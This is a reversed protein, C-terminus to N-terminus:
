WSSYSEDNWDSYISKLKDNTENDYPQEDYEGDFEFSGDYQNNNNNNIIDIKSRDKRGIIRFSANITPSPDKIDREILTNDYSINTDTFENIDVFKDDERFRLSRTTTHQNTRAISNTLLYSFIFLVFSSITHSVFM